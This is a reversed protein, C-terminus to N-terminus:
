RRREAKRRAHWVGASIAAISSRRNSWLSVVLYAERAIDFFFGPHVLVHDDTLLTLVLKGRQAGGAGASGGVMRGRVDLVTM